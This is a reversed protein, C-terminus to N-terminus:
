QIDPAQKKTSSLLNVIDNFGCKRAIDIPLVGGLFDNKMSADAGSELLLRVIDCYGWSVAQMLPSLREVVTLSNVSAGRKILFDVINYHGEQCAWHLATWGKADMAEISGITKELQVVLDFDGVAAAISLEDVKHEETPTTIM